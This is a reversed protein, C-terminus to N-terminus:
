RTEADSWGTTNIGGVSTGTTPQSRYSLYQFGANALHGLARTTGTLVALNRESDVQKSRLDIQRQLNKMNMYTTQIDSEAKSFEDHLVAWATPSSLDLNRTAIAAIIGDTTMHLSRSIADVDQAAQYEAIKSQIRLQKKQQKASKDAGMMGAVAGAAGIIQSGISIAGVAGIAM